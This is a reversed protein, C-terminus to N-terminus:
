PNFVTTTSILHGHESKTLRTKTHPERKGSEDEMSSIDIALYVSTKEQLSALLLVSKKRTFAFAFFSLFFFLVWLILLLTRSVGISEALALAVNSRQSGNDM